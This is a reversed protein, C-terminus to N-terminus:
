GRDLRNKTIGSYLVGSLYDNKTKELHCNACRLECKKLEKFTRESLVCKINFSKELPNIHDFQLKETTGCDVCKGGLMEILINKRKHHSIRAKENIEDRNEDRRKQISEINIEYLERRREGLREHNDNIYKQSKVKRCSKCEKRRYIKDPDKKSRYTLKPFEEEPKIEGCIICQNPKLHAYKQMGGLWEERPKPNSIVVWKGNQKIRKILGGSGNKVFRIEGEPAVRNM